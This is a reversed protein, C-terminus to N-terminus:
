ARILGAFPNSLEAYRIGCRVHSILSESVGLEAAWAKGTRDDSRIQRAIDMDIKGMRARNLRVGSAARRAKVAPRANVKKTMESRTTLVLHEPELCLSQGCDVTVLKGQPIPGKAATWVQRRLTTGESKPHGKGNTAGPWLLCDGCEKCRLKIKELIM